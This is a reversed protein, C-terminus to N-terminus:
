TWEGRDRLDVVRHHRDSCSRCRQGRLATTGPQAHRAPSAPTLIPYTPTTIIDLVSYVWVSALYAGKNGLRM